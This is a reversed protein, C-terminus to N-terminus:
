RAGERSSGLSGTTVTGAGRDAKASLLPAGDGSMSRALFTKLREGWLTWGLQDDALFHGENGYPPLLHFEAAGGGGQYADAMERATEPVFFTDNRAYLWLSPVRSEAGFRRAAAVLKDRGCVNTARGGAYAGRGGAFNIIARLGPIERAGLALSAWGGSSVGVALITDSKVFPQRVMFRLAADIDDAAKQGAAYHDPHACSDQGEIFSGATAGHGRRQPLVVVWGRDVFWRSLWYFVPLSVSERTSADTGHNIVVLPRRAEDSSCEAKSKGPRFVTARLDTDPDGGPLIWLQECMRSGLPGFPGHRGVSEVAAASAVAAASLCLAVILRVAM